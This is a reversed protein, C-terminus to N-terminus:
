AAGGILRTANTNPDIVARVRRVVPAQPGTVDVLRYIAERQMAPAARRTVTLYGTDLLARCYDAAAKADVQVTETTSHAALDTPMFSGLKRMSTWMNEEPTRLRQPEVRVFDAKCRWLSRGAGTQGDQLQDVAGEKIWGRVIRTAQEVSIGVAHSIDAYGWRDMILAKAWAAESVALFNAATVALAKPKPKRMM